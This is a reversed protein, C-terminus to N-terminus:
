AHSAVSRNLEPIDQLRTFGFRQPAFTHPLDAGCVKGDMLYEKGMAGQAWTLVTDIQPTEVGALEAVEKMPCTLGVYARNTAFRTRLTSDDDIYKAYARLCWPFIHRVM